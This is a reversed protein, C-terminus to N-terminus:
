WAFQQEKKLFYHQEIIIDHPLKQELMMVAKELDKKHHATEMEQSEFTIGADAYAGCISHNILLVHTYPHVKMALQIKWLVFDTDTEKRPNVLNKTAGPDTDFFYNGKGFRKECQELIADRIAPDYCTYIYAYEHSQSNM